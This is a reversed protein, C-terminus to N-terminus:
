LKRRRFIISNTALEGNLKRYDAVTTADPLDDISNSGYTRLSEGVAELHHWRIEGLTEAFFITGQMLDDREMLYFMTGEVGLLRYYLDNKM